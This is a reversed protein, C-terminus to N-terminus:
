SAQDRRLMPHLSVSRFLSPTDDDVCVPANHPGLLGGSGLLMICLVCKPGAPSRFVFGTRGSSKKSLRKQLSQLTRILERDRREMSHLESEWKANAGDLRKQADAREIQVSKEREARDAGDHHWQVIPLAISAIFTAFAILLTAVAAVLNWLPKWDDRIAHLADRIQVGTIANTESSAVLRELQKQSKGDPAARYAALSDPPPAETKAM